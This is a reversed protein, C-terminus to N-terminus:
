SDDGIPMSMGGRMRGESQSYYAHRSRFPLQCWGWGVGAAPLPFGSPTPVAAQYGDTPRPNVTGVSLSASWCLGVIRGANADIPHPSQRWGWPSTYDHNTVDLNDTLTPTVSTVPEVGPFNPPVRRSPTTSAPHVALSCMSSGRVFLGGFSRGAAQGNRSAPELSDGSSCRPPAIGQQLPMRIGPLDVHADHFLVRNEM